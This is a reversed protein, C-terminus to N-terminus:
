WHQGSGTDEGVSPETLACAGPVSFGSAAPTSSLVSTCAENGPGRNQTEQGPSRLSWFTEHFSSALPLSAVTAPCTPGGRPHASKAGKGEAVM